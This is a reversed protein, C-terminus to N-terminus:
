SGLAASQGEPRPVEEGRKKIHWLVPRGSPALTRESPRRCHAAETCSGRTLSKSAVTRCSLGPCVSRGRTREPGGPSASPGPTQDTLSAASGCALCTPTSGPHSPFVRSILFTNPVVGEVSVSSEAKFLTEWRSAAQGEQFNPALLAATLRARTLPTLGFHPPRARPRGSRFCCPQSGRLWPRSQGGPVDPM